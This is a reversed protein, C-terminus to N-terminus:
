ITLAFDIHMGQVTFNTNKSVPQAVLRLRSGADADPDVDVEFGNQKLVDLNDIAVLEDAATLELVAPSIIAHSATVPHTRM